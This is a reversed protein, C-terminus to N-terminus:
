ECDMFIKMGNLGILKVRICLYRFRYNIRLEWEVWQQGDIISGHVAELNRIILNILHFCIWGNIQFHITLFYSFSFRNAPIEMERGSFKKGSFIKLKRFSQVTKWVMKERFPCTQQRINTASGTPIPDWTMLHSVSEVGVFLVLLLFGNFCKLLLENWANTHDM